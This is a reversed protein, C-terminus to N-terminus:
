SSVELTAAVETLLDIDADGEAFLQLQIGTVPDIWILIPYGDDVAVATVAGAPTDLGVVDGDRQAATLQMTLCHAALPGALPTIVVRRESQGLTPGDGLLLQDGVNTYATWTDSPEYQGPMGTGDPELIALGPPPTPLALTPNDKPDPPPATPVPPLDTPCVAALQDVVQQSPAPPGGPGGVDIRAAGAPGRLEGALDAPSSGEVVLVNNKIPVRSGDDRVYIDYGDPITEIMQLRQGAGGGYGYTSLPNQLDLPVPECEVSLPNQHTAILCIADGARARSIFATLDGSDYALRATELAPTFSPDANPGSIMDESFAILRPDDPVAPRAFISYTVQQDAPPPGSQSRAYEVPHRLAVPTQQDPGILTATEPVEGTSDLWLVNGTTQITQGNPLRLTDWGEAVLAAWRGDTTAVSVLFPWSTAQERPACELATLQPGEMILLCVGETDARPAVWVQVDDDSVAVGASTLDPQYVSRVNEGWLPQAAELLDAGPADLGSTLGDPFPQEFEPFPVAGGEWVLKGAPGTFTTTEPDWGPALARISAVNNVVEAQRGDDTEAQDYGDPVLWGFRGEDGILLGSEAPLASCRETTGAGGGLEQVVHLCFGGTSSPSVLYRYGEVERALRTGEPLQTIGPLNLAEREQVSIPPLDFVGLAPRDTSSDLMVQPTPQLQQVVGVALVAVVVVAVAGLARRRRILGDARDNVTQTAFSAQPPVAAQLQERLDSM